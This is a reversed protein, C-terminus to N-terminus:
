GGAEKMKSAAFQMAFFVTKLNLTMIADWEGESIELFPTILVLGANNVLATIQGWDASLDIVKKVEDMKTLDATLALVKAGLSEMEEKASNLTATNIDVIVVAFGDRALRHAVARGIGQGAGTVISVQLRSSDSSNM